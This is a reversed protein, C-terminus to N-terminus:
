RLHASAEGPVCLFASDKRQHFIEECALAYDQQLQAAKKGRTVVFVKDRGALFAKLEEPSTLYTRRYSDDHQFQTEREEGLAMVALRGRYFSISPLFDGFAVLDIKRQPDRANIAEVMKEYGKMEPGAVGVAAFGVASVLVLTLATLPLFREGHLNRFVSGVLVAFLVTAGVLFFRVDRLPPYLFAAVAPAAAFVALSLGALVKTKRMELSGLFDATIIAAIGYFPLIYTAHKGKAISFVILPAVLYVLLIRATPRVKRYELLGRLLFFVYPIFTVFFIYLFYWPPEYRHFRDTVVRDVTQVKLFYYLLGPNEIVVTLYWPLIVALFMVTGAAVERWAFVSRHGRDFLKGVLFPLLTFLFIIPGKTLFGLALVLSYGLTNLMGGRGRLQRFLFYQAMVTFCTLYIETSAVRSIVLFLLSSAFVLAAAVAQREEELIVRALLYLFWVAACAALVGFFRAGFDNQGFIRIGAAVLWYALPPKHFHKIGNFHPELYNGTVVMERAIEAYRAETSEVLPSIGCSVLLVAGFFLWLLFIRTKAAM